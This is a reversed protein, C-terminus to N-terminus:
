LASLHTSFLSYIEAHGAVSNLGTLTGLAMGQIGVMQEETKCESAGGRVIGDGRDKDWTCFGSFSQSHQLLPTIRICPSLLTLMPATRRTRQCENRGRIGQKNGWGWHQERAV